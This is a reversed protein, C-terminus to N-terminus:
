VGHLLNHKVTDSYWLICKWICRFCMNLVSKIQSLSCSVIIQIWVGIFLQIELNVLNDESIFISYTLILYTILKINNEGLLPYREHSFKLSWHRLCIHLCHFENFYQILNLFTAQHCVVIAVNIYQNIKHQLWWFCCLVLDYFIM